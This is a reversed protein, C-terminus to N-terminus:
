ARLSTSGDDRVTWSPNHEIELSHGDLDCFIGLLRGWVRDLGPSSITAGAEQAAALIREVEDPSAARAVAQLNRTCTRDSTRPIQV